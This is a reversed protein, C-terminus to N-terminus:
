GGKKVVFDDEEPDYYGECISNHFLFLKEGDSLEKIGSILIFERKM